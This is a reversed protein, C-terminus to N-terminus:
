FQRFNNANRPANQYQIGNMSDAPPGPPMRLPPLQESRVSPGQYHPHSPDMLHEHERSVHDGRYGSPGAFRNLDSRLQANEVRFSASERLITEREKSLSANKSREKELAEKM